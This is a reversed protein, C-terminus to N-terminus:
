VEKIIAQYFVYERNDLYYGIPGHLTWVGMILHDNLQEELESPTTGTVIKIKQRM